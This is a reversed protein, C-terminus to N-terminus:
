PETAPRELGTVPNPEQFESLDAASLTAVAPVDAARASPATAAAPELPLTRYWTDLM